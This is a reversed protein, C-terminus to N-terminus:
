HIGQARQCGEGVGPKRRARTSQVGLSRPGGRARRCGRGGRSMLCLVMMVLRVDLTSIHKLRKVADVHSYADCFERARMMIQAARVAKARATGNPSIRRYDCVAMLTSEGTTTAYKPPASLQAEMMAFVFLPGEAFKLQSMAQLDDPSISRKSTLSREFTGLEDLFTGGPGGSWARVFNIDAGDRM